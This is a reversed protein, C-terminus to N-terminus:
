TVVLLLLIINSILIIRSLHDILDINLAYINQFVEIEM